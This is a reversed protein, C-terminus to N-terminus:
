GQAKSKGSTCEGCDVQSGKIKDLAHGLVSLVADLNERAAKESGPLNCLLSKKRIGATGRSLMARPTAKMSAARMAESIGPIVRDLIDTTAEPTVDDPSLGTGGTTIILDIALQDCWQALTKSITQRNDEVIATAAVQYGAEELMHRLAPGSTDQRQGRAGKSSVTLIGCAYRKM